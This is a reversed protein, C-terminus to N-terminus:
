KGASRGGGHHVRSGISGSKVSNAYTTYMNNFASNGDKNPNYSDYASPRKLNLKDQQYGHYWYFSRYFAATAVHSHYGKADANDYSFERPEVRVYTTNETSTYILCYETKTLIGVSRDNFDNNGKVEVVSKGLEEIIAKVTDDLTSSSEYIAAKQNNTGTISTVYTFKVTSPEKSENSEQLCEEITYPNGILNRVDRWSEIGVADTILIVLVATWVIFSYIMKGKNYKFETRWRQMVSLRKNVKRGTKPNIEKVHKVYAPEIDIGKSCETEDEWTEIAYIRHETKDVEYEVYKAEDGIEVDVNGWVGDVIEIGKERMKYSSISTIEAKTYLSYMKERDNWSLWYKEGDNESVLLYEYWIDSNDEADRYQIKGLVDYIDNKISIVDGYEFEM